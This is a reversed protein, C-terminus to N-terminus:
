DRIMVTLAGKGAACVSNEVFLRINITARSEHSVSCGWVVFCIYSSRFSSLSSSLLVSLLLLWFGAFHVTSSTM